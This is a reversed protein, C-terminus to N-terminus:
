NTGLLVVEPLEHPHLEGEVLLRAAVREVASWHQLLLQRAALRHPLLDDDLAALELEARAKEFDGASKAPDPIVPQGLSAAIEESALGACLIVVIAAVVEPDIRSSLEGVKAAEHLKRRSLAASIEGSGFSNVNIPAALVHYPSLHTAVAHGAHHFAAQSRSPDSM